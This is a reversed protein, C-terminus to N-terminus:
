ERLDITWETNEARKIVEKKIEDKKNKYSMTNSNINKNNVHEWVAWSIAELLQEFREDTINTSPWSEEAPSSANEILDIAKYPKLAETLVFQEEWAKEIILDWKKLIKDLFWYEEVWIWEIKDFNISETKAKLFSWDLAIISNNTLIWVDTYWNLIDYILKFFILFLYIELFKFPIQTQITNSFYYFYLPLAIFLSLQVILSKIISIPHIHIIHMMEQGEPIYKKFFDQDFKNM